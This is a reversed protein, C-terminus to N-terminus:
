NEVNLIASIIQGLSDKKKKKFNVLKKWEM